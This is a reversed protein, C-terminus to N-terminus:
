FFDAQGKGRSGSENRCKDYTLFKWIPLKVKSIHYLPKALYQFSVKISEEVTKAM